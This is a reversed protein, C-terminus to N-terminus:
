RSGIGAPVLFGIPSVLHCKDCAVINILSIGPCSILISIYQLCEFGTVGAIVRMSSKLTTHIHPCTLSFSCYIGMM